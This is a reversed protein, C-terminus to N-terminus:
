IEGLLKAPMLKLEGCDECIYVVVPIGSAPMFSIGQETKAVKTLAYIGDVRKLKVSSCNSCKLQREKGLPNQKNDM